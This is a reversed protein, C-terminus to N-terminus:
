VTDQGSAEAPDQVAPGENEAQYLEIYGKEGRRVEAFADRYMKRMKGGARNTYIKEKELDAVILHLESHGRFSFLYGRDFGTREIRRIMEASPSKRCIVVASLYSYMHDKEPYKGGKRVMVPEIYGTLTETMRDLLADSLEETEQFIVYEYSRIGWLKAKRTLVYKEGLSFFYGYASYTEGNLECNKSIDFSGAYKALIRDLYQETEM